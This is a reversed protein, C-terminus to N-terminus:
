KDFFGVLMRDGKKLVKYTWRRLDVLQMEYTDRHEWFKAADAALTKYPSDACRTKKIKWSKIEEMFRDLSVIGIECRAKNLIHWWENPSFEYNSHKDFQRETLYAICWGLLFFDEDAKIMAISDKNASSVLKFYPKDIFQTAYEGFFLSGTQSESGTIKDKHLDEWNFLSKRLEGLPIMVDRNHEDICAHHCFDVWPCMRLGLGNECRLVVSEVIVRDKDNEAYCADTEKVTRRNIEVSSIKLGRLPSFVVDADANNGNCSSPTDWPIANMSLLYEGDFPTDVELVDGDDFEILLHEDSEIWRPYLLKPNLLDFDRTKEVAEEHSFLAELRHQFYGSIADQKLNYCYGVAKFRRITRGCLSFGDITRSIEECTSLCPMEDLPKVTGSDEKGDSEENAEEKDGDDVDQWLPSNGIVFPITFWKEAEANRDKVNSLYLGFDKARTTMNEDLMSLYCEDVIKGFMQWKDDTLRKFDTVKRLVDSLTTRSGLPLTLLGDVMKEVEEGYDIFGEDEQLLRQLLAFNYPYANCGGFRVARRRNSFKVELSWYTGDCVHPDSYYRQWEGVHLNRFQGLFERKGVLNNPSDAADRGKEPFPVVGGMIERIKEIRAIPSEDFVIKRVDRESGLCGGIDFVIEKIVPIDKEFELAKAEARTPKYEGGKDSLAQKAKEICTRIDALRRHERPYVLPIGFSRNPDEIKRELRRLESKLRCIAALIEKVGKSAFGIKAYESKSYSDEDTQAKLYALIDM